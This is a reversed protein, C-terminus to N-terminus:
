CFVGLLHFLSIKNWALSPSLWAAIAQTSPKRVGVMAYLGRKSLNDGKRIVPLRILLQVVALSSTRRLQSSLNKLVLDLLKYPDTNGTKYAHLMSPEPANLTSNGKGQLCFCGVLLRGHLKGLTTHAMKKAIYCLALAMGGTLLPETNYVGQWSVVVEKIGDRIVQSAFALAEMQGDIPRTNQISVNASPYIMKAAHPHCVVVALLNKSSNLLHANCFTVVSDLLHPVSNSEILASNFSTDLIVALLEGEEDKSPDDGPHVQSGM